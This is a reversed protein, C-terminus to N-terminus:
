RGRMRDLPAAIRCAFRYRRTERISELADGAARAAAEAAALRDRLTALEEDRADLLARVREVEALNPWIRAFNQLELRVLHALEDGHSPAAPPTPDLERALEVLESAHVRVSHNASALDRCAEGMHEDYAALEKALRDKDIMRDPAATGAFGDAEMAAYRDPTVWGDGGAVGYVYTARGAAMAELASRGCGIVLDARALALEPAATPTRPMGIRDLELGAARCADEVMAARPAKLYNSMVLAVRAPSRPLALARFRLLDIPQKMRVIRPHWARAAVARRVRDNLAIVAQCRDELQPPAQLMFDASHAVFIRVARAYRTALEHCTAADCFIVLDRESPLERTGVVRVGQAAAHEAIPGRNPSYIVTDHGLRELERALTLSYTETGAYHVFNEFTLLIRM